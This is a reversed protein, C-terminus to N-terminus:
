KRWEIVPETKAWLYVTIGTCAVVGILVGIFFWAVVEKM